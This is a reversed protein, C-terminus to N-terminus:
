SQWDFGQGDAVSQSRCSGIRVRDGVQAEHSIDPRCIWSLRWRAGQKWTRAGPELVTGRLGAFPNLVRITDVIAFVIIGEGRSRGGRDVMQATRHYVRVVTVSGQHAGGVRADM